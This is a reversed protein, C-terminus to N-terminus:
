RCARQGRERAAPWATDVLIVRALQHLQMCETDVAAICLLINLFYRACESAPRDFRRLEAATEDKSGLQM